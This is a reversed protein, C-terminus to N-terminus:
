EQGLPGARMLELAVPWLPGRGELASNLARPGRSGMRFQEAGSQKIAGAEGKGM